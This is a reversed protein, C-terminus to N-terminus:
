HHSGSLGLRAGWACPYFASRLALPLGRNYTFFALALGIVAYGQGGM